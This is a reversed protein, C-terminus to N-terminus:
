SLKLRKLEISTNDLEARSILFRRKRSNFSNNSGESTVYEYFIDFNILNSNGILLTDYLKPCLDSILKKQYPKDIVSLIYNLSYLEPQPLDSNIIDIMGPNKTSIVIEHMPKIIQVFDRIPIKSKFESADLQNSVDNFQSSDAEKIALELSFIIFKLNLIPTWHQKTLFKLKVFSMSDVISELNYEEPNLLMIYPHSYPFDYTFVFTFFLRLHNKFQSNPNKKVILVQMSFLNEKQHHFIDSYYHSCEPVILNNTNSVLEQLDKILINYAREAKHISNGSSEENLLVTDYNNTLRNYSSTFTKITNQREETLNFINTNQTDLQM